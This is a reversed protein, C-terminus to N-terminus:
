QTSRALAREVLEKANEPFAAMWRPENSDLDNDIQFFLSAVYYEIGESSGLLEDFERHWVLVADQQWAGASLLDYFGNWNGRFRDAISKNFLATLLSVMLDDACSCPPLDVFLAAPTSRIQSWDSGADFYLFQHRDFDIDTIQIPASM